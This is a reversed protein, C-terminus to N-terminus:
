FGDGFNQAPQAPASPAQAPQTPAPTAPAVPAAGATQMPARSSADFEVKFNQYARGKPTKPQSIGLYTIRVECGIPIEKFKGDLLGSGWVGVLEGTPLLIEYLNSDNQGVNTKMSKYFGQIVEGLYISKDEANKPEPTWRVVQGMQEKAEQFAM